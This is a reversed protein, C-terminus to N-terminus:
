QQLTEPSIAAQTDTKIYLNHLFTVTLHWTYEQLHTQLTSRYSYFLFYQLDLEVSKRIKLLNGLISDRVIQAQFEQWVIQEPLM